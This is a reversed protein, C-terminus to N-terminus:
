KLRVIEARLEGIEEAQVKNAHRLRENQRAVDTLNLVLRDREALSKDLEVSLRDCKLLLAHNETNLSRCDEMLEKNRAELREIRALTKPLVDIAAAEQSRLESM